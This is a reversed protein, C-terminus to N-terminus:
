NFYDKLESIDGMSMIEEIIIELEAVDKNKLKEKYEQPLSKFKKLLLRIAMEVMAEKKGIAIGKEMGKEEPVKFIDLMRFEEWIDEIERESLFKNALVLTMASIKNIEEASINLNQELRITEKVLEGIELKSKMLPLFILELENVKKGEKIKERIEKLKYDGDRKSMDIVQVDYKLSGIDLRAIDKRFGKICLVVTIIKSRYRNYLKLDYSSFRILDDRSIDVEEELHLISGDELRFNLDMRQESTEIEAFETEVFDEIKPLELGLFEGIRDAFISFSEKFVMDYNQYDIKFKSM